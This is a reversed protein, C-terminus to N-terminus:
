DEDKEEKFLGLKKFWQTKRELVFVDIALLLLAIALFWQFQDEYDAFIQSEFEQKEMQEIQAMLGEVTGKVSTGHVYKGNALEAIQLLLEPKLQSVVVENNRDRKYGIRVGNRIDPIPAGQETGIGITIIQIGKAAAERAAETYGDEHDEGDSLIVLLRNKQQEDDFYKVALEIAESIATGQSPILETDITKLFLRAAGYDTTIPLQPYAQGAYVIMGVRDAVLEDLTRSMILKAKELRNPREDETLMSKSVDLAFVLDIGERKVNELRSGVRPNVLGIALFLLILLWLLLKLVPKTASREPAMKELLAADGFHKRVRKQWLVYGVYLLLVVPILLLLYFYYPNDLEYM